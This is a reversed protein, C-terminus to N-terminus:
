GFHATVFYSAEASPQHALAPENLVAWRFPLSPQFAPCLGKASNNSINQQNLRVFSLICFLHITSVPLHFPRVESETIKIQKKDQIKQKQKKEITCSTVLDGGASGSGQFDMVGIVGEGAM